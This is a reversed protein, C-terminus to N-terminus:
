TIDLLQLRYDFGYSLMGERAVLQGQFECFLVANKFTPRM